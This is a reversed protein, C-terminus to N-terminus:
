PLAADPTAGPPVERPTRPGPDRPGASPHGDRPAPRGAPGATAARSARTALGLALALTRALVRLDLRLGRGRLYELDIALKPHLQARVYHEEPDLGAAGDNEQAKTYFIQGPGTLGPRVRLIELEGPSYWALFRPVEPRPGILTMEGRVINWLQPLEDLKSARLLAGVRTVRPDAPGTVLSGATDAGDTMTRFKLMRFPRGDRGARVQRYIAPGRSTLKVVAAILALLPATVALLGGAIVLDAARRLRTDPRCAGPARVAAASGARAPGPGPPALPARHRRGTGAAICALTATTALYTVASTIAGGLAGYRPILLIDMTVTIVAGVGMAASNLGPRGSGLLFASSVAAAGEVSLGAIIIEAPLVAGRFAAGYIVPLLVASAVALAPALVLTLATAQPTMRRAEDAARARAMSAFRPYLVYNLATPALRMLEAFKSAVAYVGLVAPGALAGLLVFDFRLNTLWLLNGLQGRAGFAAIRRGLRASPRGWHRFFGRSALRILGTATALIGSAILAIVVATIGRGFHALLVAPYCAVFWLEEAVIVLNAGAIDGSGQCCGKATVTALQTVTVAAMVAVLSVPTHRFFLAHLPWSCALWAAAAAACGAATMAALTPRLRPDGGHRGALFFASATPLGSSLVVGLLWPLVRLLAYDGVVAPGGARAVMLSAASVAALAGGQALLNSLSARSVLGSGARPRSPPRAPPDPAAAPGPAARAAPPAPSAPVPRAPGAGAPLPRSLTLAPSPPLAAPRVQLAAGLTRRGPRTVSRRRADRGLVAVIGLLAWLFRFHLVEEYLSNTVLAILGAVVAVPAPVASAFRASLPRRLVPYAWYAATGLLLLLGLLAVPGREVLMALFDNHAENAYPYLWTTLLPKTSAPGLGLVGASREYLQALEMILTTRESSSQGSRGISNVLLPQGSMLAWQRIASLPVSALLVGAATATALVVALVGALGHRRHLRVLLMFFIAVCLALVGGNSETLALAWALLLYATVRMWRASPTRAACVVFITSDWYTSAYNPDGFTFMVRNGEAPTLGEIVAVHGLWAAVVVIAWFIGSWSWAVLVWRLVRPTGAVNVVTVCWLFLLVDIALTLLALSPLPSVLGSAAGAAIMLGVPIAYPARIKRHSAAVWIAATVIAGVTLIDVPSSNGPGAPHLIPQFIFALVLTIAATRQATRRRPAAGGAPPPAPRRHPQRLLARDLTVTM